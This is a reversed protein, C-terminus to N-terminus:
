VKLKLFLASSKKWVKAMTALSLSTMVTAINATTEICQCTFTQTLLVAVYVTM